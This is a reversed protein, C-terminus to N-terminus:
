QSGEYSFALVGGVVTAAVGVKRLMAPHIGEVDADFLTLNADAGARIASEVDLGGANKTYLALADALKLGRREPGRDLMSAWMGLVPSVSEVPSDSSGSIVVGEEVMLRLPYLDRVREEGLRQVAWSDSVAFMPQVTALIGHKRMRGRLDSPVLSAHEIRHKRPNHNGAVSGIADVAQEVARDGIAHIIVQYGSSDFREVASLLEEDSYRLYGSADPMDLYPERLAATRAGLSGDAYLKVGDIRFDPGSKGIDRESVFPVAEPPIYVRHRLALSGARSAAELAKLEEEYGGSSVISHVTAVGFKLAELEFVGLDELCTEASRGPVRALAAELAQERVIGTLTGSPDRDYLPGAQGEFGLSALASSNLLGIHGCVRTLVVPNKPSLDDIDQRCPLRGESLAEQDWGRGTVWGGPPTKHVAAALRMRISTINSTGRLDLTRKSRGYEFPHSHSDTLGPLLTAGGADIRRVDNHIEETTGRTVQSIKGGDARVSALAGADLRCNEILLTM